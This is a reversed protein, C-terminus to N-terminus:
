SIDDKSYARIGMGYIAKFNGQLQDFKLMKKRTVAGSNGSTHARQTQWFNDM